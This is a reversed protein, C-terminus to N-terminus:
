GNPLVEIITDGAQLAACAPNRAGYPQGDRYIRLGMGPAIASLPKGVEDPRVEREHLVVRGDKRALDQLYEALHPGHTSGALLLGTFQVPNIVTTAGAQHALDENDTERIVVSVPVDRTLQRATLVALVGTDDRGVSIILARAQGLRVAELVANHTADGQLTALGINEAMKLAEASTDIVVLADPDTGRALLEAVAEQGSRGYGVVVTHGSLTRQISRMRFRDWYRKFLFDYATGLFLLWVFLRIPTIFFTDILKARDTVPVIDGYGVSTVTIMTFYVVDIFSISGDINDRLGDRDLWLVLLLLGVLGLLLTVRVGIDRLGQNPKHRRLPNVAEVGAM